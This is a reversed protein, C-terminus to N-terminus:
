EELLGLTAALPLAVLPSFLTFDVLQHLGFALLAWWVGTPATRALRTTEVVVAVFALATVLGGEAALTLLANDAHLKNPEVRALVQYSGIGWGTFPRAAWLAAAENWAAWRATLTAPRAAVLLVVLLATTALAWPKRWWQRWTGVAAWAALAAGRSQTALLGVAAWQWAYPALLLFVSGLLNPNIVIPRGGASLSDLLIVVTLSIGAWRMGHAVWRQGRGARCAAAFLMTLGCVAFWDIVFLRGLPTVRTLLAGGFIVMLGLLRATRM